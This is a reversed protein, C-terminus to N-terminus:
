FSYGVSLARGELDDLLRALPALERYRRAVERAYAV